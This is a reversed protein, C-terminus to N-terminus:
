SYANIVRAHRFLFAAHDIADYIDAANWGAGQLEDIDKKGFSTSDYIAKLAKSALLIHQEDLPLNAIDEKVSELVDESYNKARLLKTNFTLCYDFDEHAAIYFRLFAFLDPDIKEHSTLYFLEQIFHEFRKPSLTALLEFHPPVSGFRKRIMKLVPKTKLAPDSEIMFM